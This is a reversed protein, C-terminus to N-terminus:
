VHARGIQQLLQSDLGPTDAITEPDIRDLFPLGLAKAVAAYYLDARVSGDALLEEEISTAHRLARGEMEGLFPKSFGLKLLFRREPCDAPRGGVSFAGTPVDGFLERGAGKEAIFRYYEGGAM